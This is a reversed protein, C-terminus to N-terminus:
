KRAGRFPYDREQTYRNVSLGMGEKTAMFEMRELLYRMQARTRPLPLACPCDSFKNFCQANDFAFRRGVYPDDCAHAGAFRGFIRKGTVVAFRHIVHDDEERVVVTYGNSRLAEVLTHFLTIDDHTNIEPIVFSTKTKGRRPARQAIQRLKQVM